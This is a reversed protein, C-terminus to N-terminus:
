KWYEDPEDSDVFEVGDWESVEEVVANTPVSVPSVPGKVAEKVVPAKVAVSATYDLGFDKPHRRKFGELFDEFSGSASIM